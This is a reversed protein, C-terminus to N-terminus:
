NSIILGAEENTLLRNLCELELAIIEDDGVFEQSEILELLYGEFPINQAQAIEQLKLLDPLTSSLGVLKNPTAKM